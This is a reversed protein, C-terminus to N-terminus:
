EQFPVIYIMDGEKKAKLVECHRLVSFQRNLEWETFEFKEAIEEKTAKGQKKVFEYIDKQTDTLGETGSQGLAARHRKASHTAAVDCTKSTDIIRIYCDECLTQSLHRCEEGEPITDQCKDCEMESKVEVKLIIPM